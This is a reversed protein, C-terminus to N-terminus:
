TVYEPNDCYRHKVKVGGGCSRSCESFSTDWASWGGNIPGPAGAGM